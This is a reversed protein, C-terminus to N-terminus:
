IFDVMAQEKDPLKDVHLSVAQEM